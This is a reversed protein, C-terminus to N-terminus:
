DVKVSSSGDNHIEGVASSSGDNHIEGFATFSSGDNHIEQVASSSGDNHIEGWFCHIIIWRQTDRGLLLPHHDM